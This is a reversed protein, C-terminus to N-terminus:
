WRRAWAPAEAPDPELGCLDHSWTTRWGAGAPERVELAGAATAVLLRGAVDWDAWAADELPAGDISYRLLAGEVAPDTFSHGEHVIRLEGGGSPRARRLELRLPGDRDTRNMLDWGRRLELAVDREFFLAQGSLQPPTLDALQAPFSGHDPPTGPPYGLALRGDAHFECGYAWTNGVWWAALATLWPLKSVGYFGNWPPPGSMAFYALLRGDPSLDCRRPYIRGHLWAGSEVSLPDLNWRLVHWWESPGRRLVAAVPASRAPIVHLRPPPLETTQAM